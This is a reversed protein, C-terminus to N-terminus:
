DECGVGTITIHDNVIQHKVGISRCILALKLPFPEDTFSATVSCGGIEANTFDIQVDYVRALKTLAELAPTSSFTLYTDPVKLAKISVSDLRTHQIQGAKDQLIFQEHETLIVNPKNNDVRTDQDNHSYISVTGSKVVVSIQARLEDTSIEFSTGLVKATVKGANVYFPKKPDKTVEFFATGELIIDRTDGNFERPYRLLSNKALMVSSNDPLSILLPNDGKNVREIMYNASTSTESTENLPHREWTLQRIYWGGIALMIVSAAAMWRPFSRGSRAHREDSNIKSMIDAIEGDLEATSILDDHVPHIALVIARAEAIADQQVPNEDIWTRWVVDEAASPHRVWTRFRLDDVFDKVSYKKYHNMASIPEKDFLISLSQLKRSEAGFSNKL